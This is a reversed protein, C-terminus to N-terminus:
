VDFSGEMKEPVCLFRVCFWGGRESNVALHPNVECLASLSEYAVQRTPVNNSVTYGSM